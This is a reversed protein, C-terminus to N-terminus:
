PSIFKGDMGFKQSEWRKQLSSSKFDELSSKLINSQQMNGFLTLFRSQTGTVNMSDESENQWEAVKQDCM